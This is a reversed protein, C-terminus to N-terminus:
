SCIAFACGLMRGTSERHRNPPEHTEDLSCFSARMNVFLRLSRLPENPLANSTYNKGKNDEYQEENNRYQNLVSVTFGGRCRSLM